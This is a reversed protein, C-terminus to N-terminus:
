IGLAEGTNRSRKEGSKEKAERNSKGQKTRGRREKTAETRGGESRSPM